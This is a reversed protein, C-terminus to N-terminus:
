VRTCIYTFSKWGPGCADDEIARVLRGGSQAILAEVTDRPM